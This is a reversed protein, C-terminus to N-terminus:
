RTSDAAHEAMDTTAGFATTIKGQADPVRTSSLKQSLDIGACHAVATRRRLISSAPEVDYGVEVDM